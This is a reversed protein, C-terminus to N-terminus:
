VSSGSGLAAAKLRDFEIRTILGDELLRNAKRIEDSASGGSVERIHRDTAAAAVEQRRNIRRTMGDGRVVVYVVVTVIPVAILLLLWVAKRWTHLAPDRFVDTVVTVIAFLYAIFVFSWFFLLWSADWFSM